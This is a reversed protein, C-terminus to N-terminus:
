APARRKATDTRVAVISQADTHRQETNDAVFEQVPDIHDRWREAFDGVAARCAPSVNTVLFIRVTGRRSIVPLVTRAGSQHLRQALQEAQQSVTVGKQHRTAHHYIVLSHGAQHLLEVETMFVSKVAKRSGKALKESAIGNDPDLFITEKGRLADKSQSFWKARSMIGPPVYEEVFSADPLAPSLDRVTRPSRTRVQRLLDFLGPDLARNSPRELYGHHKGDSNNGEDPVRYWLVGLSHHDAIVRLLGLKAFDGVDATYRDQM